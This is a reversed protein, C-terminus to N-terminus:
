FYRYNENIHKHKYLIHKFMEICQITNITCYIYFYM